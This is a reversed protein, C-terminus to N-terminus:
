KESWLCNRIFRDIVKLSEESWFAAGGHDAGRMLYLETDKGCAKLKKYFQVSEECFVTRDKTGHLILVPPIRNEESVYTVACAKKAENPHELLDFGM